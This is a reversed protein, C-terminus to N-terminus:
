LGKPSVVEVRTLYATFLAFCLVVLPVLILSLTYSLWEILVATAGSIVAMLYLLRVAKPTALYLFRSLLWFLHCYGRRDNTRAILLSSFLSGTLCVREAAKSCVAVNQWRSGITFGRTQQPLVAGQELDQRLKVLASVVVLM